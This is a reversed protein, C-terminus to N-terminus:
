EPVIRWVVSPVSACTPGGDKGTGEFTTELRTGPEALAREVLAATIGTLSVKARRNWPSGSQGARTGSTVYVFRASPPGQVFPGLLRPGAEGSTVGVRVSFDFVLPDTAPAKPPLLEDRGRQVAFPVGRPPRRVVIRLALETDAPRAPM